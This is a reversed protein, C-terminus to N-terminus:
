LPSLLEDLVQQDILKKLGFNGAELVSDAVASKKDQLQLITEEISGEAILKYVTVEKDQGRRHTRYIAQLEAAPNWWPDTIIVVDAENLTLGRGGAKLSILFVDFEGDSFNKLVSKRNRTRGTLTNHKIRKAELDDPLLDLFSVFTSFVLVKHGRRILRPLERSLWKRKSSLQPAKPPTDTVLSLDLCCQRLKHIANIVSMMSRDIGSKKVKERVDADVTVRISEYRVKESRSLKVPTVNVTMPPLKIGAQKQTRRMIFPAIRRSLRAAVDDLGDLEIPNKFVRTFEERSGLLGPMCLDMLAFLETVTNEIPTGTVPITMPSSLQKIASRTTSSLSNVDQAEDLAISAWNVDKFQDIHQLLLGYTTFVVDTSSLCEFVGQRRPGYFTATNLSPTFKESEAEWNPILSTPMVVLHPGEFVKKEVCHQFFALLVLTKGLGMQDAYLGSFGERQLGILWAVARKQYPDLKANLRKPQRYGKGAHIDALRNAADILRSGDNIEINEDPLKKLTNKLQPLESPHMGGIDVGSQIIQTIAAALADIPAPVFSGDTDEIFVCREHLFQAVQDQTTTKPDDFCGIVDSIIDSISTEKGNVRLSFGISFWPLGGFADEESPDISLLIQTEGTKLQFPWSDLVDISWGQSKLEDVGRYAFHLADSRGRMDDSFTFIADAGHIEFGTGCEVADTAGSTRLLGYQEAEWELCRDSSLDSPIGDYSFTVTVAASLKAGQDSSRPVGVLRATVKREVVAPIYEPIESRIGVPYLSVTDPGIGDNLLTILDESVDPTALGLQASSRWITSKGCLGLKLKRGLPDLCVLKAPQNKVKSWALKVARPEGWTMRKKELPDFLNLHTTLNELILATTSPDTLADFLDTGFAPQGSILRQDVLGQVISRNGDNLLYAYANDVDLIRALPVKRGIRWRSSVAGLRRLIHGQFVLFPGAEHLTFGLRDTVTVTKQAGSANDEDFM